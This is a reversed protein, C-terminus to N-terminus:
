IHMLFIIIFPCNKNFQRTNKFDSDSNRGRFFATQKIYINNLPLGIFEITYFILCLLQLLGQNM